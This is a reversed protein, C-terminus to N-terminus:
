KRTLQYTVGIRIGSEFIRQPDDEASFPIIAHWKTYPNIFVSGGCRFDYKAAIGIMGGIGSQHHIPSSANPDIGLFVGGNLFFYKLFNARVTLPVNVLSLHEHHSSQEIGPYFTPTILVTHRSYDIGTEFEIWTHITKVYHIGLAFYGDGDYGPAGILDDNCIIDNTGFGSYSIGLKGWDTRTAPEQAQLSICVFAVFVVALLRQTMPQANQESLANHKIGFMSKKM